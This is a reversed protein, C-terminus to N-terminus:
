GQNRAPPPTESGSDPKQRGGGMTQEQRLCASLAEALAPVTPLGHLDGPAVWRLETSEWDLRIAGIKEVDFLFPHVLWRIQTEPDPVELRPAGCVLHCQDDHLGTEERIEQKAQELPDESELYGSIGGWRGRFTRVRESRRVLMIKGGHRLFSTVVSKRDFKQQETM